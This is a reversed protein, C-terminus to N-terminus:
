LALRRGVRVPHDAMALMADDGASDGYAWLTVAGSGPGADLHARLRRAKEDGRCNGGLLRGTCRGDGDVELRTCLLADADLERVVPELYVDLSASVIVVQHGQDQHWDVRARTDPRLRERALRMGYRRGSEAVEEFPRGALLAVLLREKAVDRSSRGIAAGLLPVGLRAGAVALRRAGVLSALFPALSDRRTLTGDFDFAAVTRPAGPEV